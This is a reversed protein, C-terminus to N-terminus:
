EKGNPPSNGTLDKLAKKESGIVIFRTVQINIPYYIGMQYM